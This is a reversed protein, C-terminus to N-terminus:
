ESSILRVLPVNNTIGQLLGVLKARHFLFVDHQLRAIQRFM